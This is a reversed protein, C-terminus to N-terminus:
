GSMWIDGVCLVATAVEVEGDHEFVLKDEREVM